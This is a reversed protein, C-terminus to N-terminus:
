DRKEIFNEEEASTYQGKTGISRSDGDGCYISTTKELRRSSKRMKEIEDNCTRDKVYLM